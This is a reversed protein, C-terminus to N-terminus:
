NNLSQWNVSETFSIKLTSSNKNFVMRARKVRENVLNNIAYVSAKESNLINESEIEEEYNTTGCRFGIGCLCPTTVPEGGCTFKKKKAIRIGIDSTEVVEAPNKLIQDKSGNTELEKYSKIKLVVTGFDNKSTKIEYIGAKVVLKSLGLRACLIKSFEFDEDELFRIIEGDKTKIYEAIEFKSNIRKEEKNCSYMLLLSMSFVILNKKTHKM